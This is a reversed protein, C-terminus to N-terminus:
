KYLPGNVFFPFIWLALRRYTYPFPLDINRLQRRLIGEQLSPWVFISAPIYLFALRTVFFTFHPFSSLDCLLEQHAATQAGGTKRKAFKPM